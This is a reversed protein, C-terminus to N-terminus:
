KFVELFAQTIEEISQYRDELKPSVGKLVFQKVREDSIRELNYKGTLVFLLLRTLAFTEYEISYNGFGIIALNGDNLTGKVESGFSTLKSQKDKVLGFDSIKIVKTDEYNFILINKFSIDRHLYNKSSIYKFGRLIQLGLNKREGSTLKTNNRQIFDYLTEDACEMYYEMKEDDFRYVEIVYPSSLEKMVEYEKKFREKEKSNLDNNARKIVFFKQYFEDKYKFVKAYSGEGILKIPYNAMTNISPVSVMKKMSFIPDYEILQIPKFDLPIESGNSEVMFTECYALFNIYDENIEFSLETNKLQYELDKILGIYFLLQRSEHANYHHNSKAKSFLFKLLANIEQHVISFIDKLKTHPINEYLDRTRIPENHRCADYKQNLFLEINM